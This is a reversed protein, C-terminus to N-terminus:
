ITTELIRDLSPDDNEGRIHKGTITGSGKSTYWLYTFNSARAVISGSAM